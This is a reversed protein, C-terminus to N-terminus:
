KSLKMRMNFFLEYRAYFTAVVYDRDSYQKDPYSRVSEIWPLKITLDLHFM